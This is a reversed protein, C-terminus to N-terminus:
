SKVPASTENYSATASQPNLGLWAAAFVDPPEPRGFLYGQAQDCGLALLADAQTRTEVGEAVTLLGLTRGMAVITAAIAHDNTDEAMDRVFTRDIKLKGVPLRKLYALSSYGTGFDDVALSFGIRNLQGLLEVARDVNRM